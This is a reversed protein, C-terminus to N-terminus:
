EFGDQLLTDPTVDPPRPGYAPLASGLEYAGADPASGTHDDNIGPLIEGADLAAHSTAALRLDRAAYATLPTVPFTPPSAFVAAVDVEVAHAAGAATRLQALSNFSVPGLRGTFNGTTSGLADYDLSTGGSVLDVIDYVRGSGNSFGNLTSGPGGIWLNNRSYLRAVPVGAYVGLADGAKVVTNHLLVDGSSGRYPKFAIHAVNYAANRVFWTPGGLGPQSSLAIFTNTLRNGVIRCNHFCFDAEVGDDAAESIENALIDISYQDVAGGDELLSIADRFGRVQNHEIVHGPGTLAIGEGRNAGSAGLAAENWATTGIVTNDAIWAQEARLFNVIGDGNFLTASTNVTCHRIVMHNTGNFRIRGNVTLGELWVHSRNFVGLEGNIVVGSGAAKLVLPQGPAGDRNITFGAYNGAALVIVEGPQANALVTSLTTPEAARQPANPAITPLARTTLALVQQTSGGDPDSLTLEVEYATGPMLGFVSGSHRQAWSFGQNSGAPIRWLPPAARWQPAGAPRVRVTVRGDGDADGSFPWELTLHRFTPLPAVPTGPTSANQALAPGALLLLLLLLADLAARARTRQTRRASCGHAEAWPAHVKQRVRGPHARARPRQPAAGVEEQRAADFAM